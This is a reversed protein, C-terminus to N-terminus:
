SKHPQLVRRRYGSPSESTVNRFARNFASPSEFGVHQAIELVSPRPEALLVMARLLRYQRIYHSWSTGLDEQFRRRLTRSSVGVADCVDAERVAELHAATFTIADCVIPDTAGPLHLSFPDESLQGVLQALTEFFSDAMDDSHRRDIRWRACYGIMERVVPIAALVLTTHVDVMDPTFYVSVSEVSHLTTRHEMGAPIIAAQQPPLLHHRGAAEIEAAGRSAYVLQHLDHTHWRSVLNTGDHPYAGAVVTGGSRVDVFGTNDPEPRTIASRALVTM